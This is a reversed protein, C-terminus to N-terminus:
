FGAIMHPDFPNRRWRWIQDEFAERAERIESDTGQYQLLLLLKDIPPAQTSEFFPKIRWYRAPADGDSATPDFVKRLWWDAEEFRHNNTLRKALLVPAHFFLEWNYI